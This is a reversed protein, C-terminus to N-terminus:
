TVKIVLSTSLDNKKGYHMVTFCIFYNLMCHGFVLLIADMTLLMLSDIQIGSRWNWKSHGVIYNLEDRFVTYLVFIEKGELLNKRESNAWHEYSLTFSKYPFMKYRLKGYECVWPKCVADANKPILAIALEYAFLSCTAYVFRWEIHDCLWINIKQVKFASGGRNKSVFVCMVLPM